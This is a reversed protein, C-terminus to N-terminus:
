GSGHRISKRGPMKWQDEFASDSRRCNHHTSQATNTSEAVVGDTALTGDYDAALAAFWM